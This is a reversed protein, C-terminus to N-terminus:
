RSRFLENKEQESMEKGNLRDLPEFKEVPTLKALVARLLDQQTKMDDVHRDVDELEQILEGIDVNRGSIETEIEFISDQISKITKNIFDYDTKM